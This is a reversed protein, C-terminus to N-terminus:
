KQKISKIKLQNLEDEKGINGEIFTNFAIAIRNTTQDPNLEGYHKIWSPFIIIDNTKVHIWQITSNWINWESADFFFLPFLRQQM